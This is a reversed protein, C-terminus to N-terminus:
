SGKGQLFAPEKRRGPWRTYERKRKGVREQALCKCLLGTGWRRRKKRELLAYVVYNEKIGEKNEELRTSRVLLGKGGDHIRMAWASREVASNTSSENRRRNKMNNFNRMERGGMLCDGSIWPAGGGSDFLAKGKGKSTPRYFPREKKRGGMTVQLGVWSKMGRHASYLAKKEGEEQWLYHNKERRESLLHEYATKALNRAKKTRV